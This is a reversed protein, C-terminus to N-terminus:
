NMTFRLKVQRPNQEEQPFKYKPLSDSLGLSGYIEDDMKHRIDDKSHLAMHKAKTTLFQFEKTEVM